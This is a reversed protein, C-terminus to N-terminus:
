IEVRAADLRYLADDMQGFQAALDAMAARVGKVTEMWPREGQTEAWVANVALAGVSTLIGDLKPRGDEPDYYGALERGDGYARTMAELLTMRFQQMQLESNRVVMTQESDGTRRHVLTYDGRANFAATVGSLISMDAIDYTAGISTLVFYSMPWVEVGRATRVRLFLKGPKTVDSLDAVFSRVAGVPGVIQECYFQGGNALVHQTGPVGLLLGTRMEFRLEPRSALLAIRPGGKFVYELEVHVSELNLQAVTSVSSERVVDM